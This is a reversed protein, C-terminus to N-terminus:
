GAGLAASLLKERHALLWDHARQYKAGWAAWVEIFAAHGQWTAEEIITSIWRNADVTADVVSPRLAAPLGYADLLLRFRSLAQGQRSDEVDQEALFPSWFCAAVSLEWAVCGPGALDFDILAVARGDRFVVNAPHTDNHTILGGQWAAPLPRQWRLGASGFSAAHRHYDRLLSAVSVLADPTLAWEPTPQNAAEGDLYTLVETRDHRSVLRPSGRFGSAALHALLAHVATSHHGRPRHVTSGVRLVRGRNANGGELRELTM